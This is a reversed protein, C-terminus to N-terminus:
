GQEIDGSELEIDTNLDQRKRMWNPCRSGRRTEPSGTQPDFSQPLQTFANLQLYISASIDNVYRISAM